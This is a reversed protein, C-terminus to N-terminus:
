DLNLLNILVMFLPITAISMITSLSVAASAFQTDLRHYGALLVSNSIVPLSSQIIFVKAMLPPLPIFQILVIVALPSLIFRGALAVVLDRDLRLDRFKMSSVTLGIFLMALPMTLSGIQAAADLLFKPPRLEVLVLAVGLLFGMLTPSFLRKLTLLSFVPEPERVGDRGMLYNGVTWFLTTNAFFYMIVYPMAQPGFLALNVPVGMYITNSCSFSVAMLGQRGPRVKMLGIAALAATLTLLMALVPNILGYFQEILEQRSFTNVISTLMYPPLTILTVLRPIFIKTDESFWGKKDLVYGVLAILFLSLVCDIARHLVELLM